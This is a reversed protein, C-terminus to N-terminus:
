PTQELISIIRNLEGILEADKTMKCVIGQGDATFDTFLGGAALTVDGRVCGVVDMQESACGALAMCAAIIPWRM